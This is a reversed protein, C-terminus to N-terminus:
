EVEQIIIGEWGKEKGEVKLVTDTSEGKVMVEREIVM